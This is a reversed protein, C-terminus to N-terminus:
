SIYNLIKKRQAANSIIRYVAAVAISFEGFKSWRIAGVTAIVRAIQGFVFGIEHKIIVDHNIETGPTSMQVERTTGGDARRRPRDRRSRRGGVPWFGVFSKKPSGQGGGEGM